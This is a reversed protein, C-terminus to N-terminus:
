YMLECGVNLGNIFVDQAGGPRVGMNPLRYVVVQSARTVNDVFTATYGAKLALSRTAQYKLEARFEALPSFTEDQRGSSSFTPQAVASNNFGGTIINQGFGSVQGIDQVNYGFMFRSDASLNWKGVQKQWKLRIQPGVIQNEVDTDAFTNGWGNFGDIAGGWFFEDKFQFYRVGYGIELHQNQNKAMYHDNKLRVTKMLEFGDVRSRNRVTLTDFRINFEHLDDYDYYFFVIPDGGPTVTVIGIVGGAFDGDINDVEFDRGIVGGPGVTVIEIPFQANDDDDDLDLDASPGYDRFGRLFDPSPIEFNVHVSGFGNLPTGFGYATNSQSEMNHIIGLMFGTGDQGVYGMEYRDGTGFEANPPANRIDNQVRYPVPAINQRGRDEFPTLPDLATLQPNNDIYIQESTVNVSEDGITTREGTFSWVLKDYGGFWGCDLRVPQCNLDMDVPEFWQYDQVDCFPGCHDEYQAVSERASFAMLTVVALSLCLRSSASM